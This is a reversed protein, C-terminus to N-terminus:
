RQVQKRKVDMRGIGTREYWHYEYTVESIEFLPSSKKVWQSATGGYDAVLRLVDRIRKGKAIVRSQALMRPTLETAM